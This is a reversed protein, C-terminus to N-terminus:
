HNRNIEKDSSTLEWGVGNGRTRELKCNENSKRIISVFVYFYIIYLANLDKSLENLALEIVSPAPYVNQVLTRYAGVM